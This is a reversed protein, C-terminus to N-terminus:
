AEFAAASIMLNGHQNEGGLLCGQEGFTFAGIFPVGQFAADLSQAVQPLRDGVTLMCGACYIVLGGAARKVGRGEPTGILQGLATSAVRGARSVLSDVSGTMLHLREGERVEAFVTLAHDATVREPHLLSFYPITTTGTRICGIERGLPHMTTDGLVVTEGGRMAAALRGGIWADYVQAAPKGDLEIITRDHCRTVVASAGAPEYGSQFSSAVTTSAFFVAVAVGNPGCSGGGFSMWGGAIADDAASGGAIPVHGGTAEDLAALVAEEFGPAPLVWVLSPSEGARDAAEIAQAYAAQAAARAAARRAGADDCRPVEAFGSGYAGDPDRVGWLAFGPGGFGFLGEETM